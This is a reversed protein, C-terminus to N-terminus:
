LGNRIIDVGKFAKFLEICQTAPEVDLFFEIKFPSRSELKVFFELSIKISEELILFMIMFKDELKKFDLVAIEIEKM